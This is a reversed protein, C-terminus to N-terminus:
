GNDSRDPVAGCFRPASTYSTRTKPVLNQPNSEWVRYLMKPNVCPAPRSQLDRALDNSEIWDWWRAAEAMVPRPQQTEHRQAETRRIPIALLVLVLM